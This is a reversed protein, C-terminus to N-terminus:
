GSGSKPENWQIKEEQIGLEETLYRILESKGHPSASGELRVSEPLYGGEELQLYVEVELRLARAKDLIYAELEQCIRRTLQDDAIIEGEAVAQAAEERYGEEVASLDPLRINAIPQIVTFVLFLGGVLKLLERATGKPMLNAVIGCVLAAAAISVVYEALERMM